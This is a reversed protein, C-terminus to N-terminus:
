ADGREGRGGGGGSRRGGGGGGGGRGSGPGGGGGGRAPSSATWPTGTLRFYAGALDADHREYGRIGAGHAALVALAPEGGELHRDRWLTITAGDMTVEPAGPLAALAARLGDADPGPPRLLTVVARARAHTAVLAAPSDAALLRGGHLLLVRDCHAAVDALDHTAVLATEGEARFGALRQWLDRRGEPDLGATPEDLLVLRPRHMMELALHLRQRQGGSWSGVPRAVFPALGCSEVLSDLCERRERPPLGRLAHFLRLTEWGTMEPDLAADQTVHAAQRRLRVRERRPDMGLVEVRGADAALVGFLVKLLTSKGSGNAGVVGVLEGAPVTFGVGDLARVGGGLTKALGEARVAADTPTSSPAPM